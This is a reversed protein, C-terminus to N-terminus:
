YNVSSLNDVIVLAIGVIFHVAFLVGNHPM